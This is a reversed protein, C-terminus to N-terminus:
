LPTPCTCGSAWCRSINSNNMMGGAVQELRTDALNRVVEKSLTLPKKSSSKKM